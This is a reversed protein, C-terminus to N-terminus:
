HRTECLAQAQVVGAILLRVAIATNSELNGEYDFESLLYSLASELIVPMNKIVDDPDYGADNARAQFDDVLRETKACGPCLRQPHKPQM